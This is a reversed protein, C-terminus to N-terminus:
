FLSCNKTWFKIKRKVQIFKLLKRRKQKSQKYTFYKTTYSTFCNETWFKRNLYSTLYSKM